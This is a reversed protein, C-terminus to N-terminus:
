FKDSVCYENKGANKAEYLLRDATAMYDWTKTNESPQRCIAGQSVSIYRYDPNRSFKHTIALRHIRRKIDIVYNEVEQLTYNEYILVFEDGGYRAVFIGPYEGIDQLIKAIKGLVEDGAQHGYNDNYEKFYDIDLIEYGLNRGNLIAKQLAIESYENLSYRNNLGTLADIESKRRLEENRKEMEYRKKKSEELTFKVVLNDKLIMQQDKELKESLKYFLGCEQLFAAHDKIKEYYCIKLQVMQKQIHYSEAKNVLPGLKNIFIWFSDYKGIELLMSAYYYLDDFVDFLAIAECDKNDIENIVFDRRTIDGKGNAIQAELSKILIYILADEKQDSHEKSLALYYDADDFNKGHVACTTQNIYTTAKEFIAHAPYEAFIRESDDFYLKAHEPDNLFLYISGINTNFLYLMDVMGYEECIARGKLYYDMSLLLNGQSNAIIGLINQSRAVLRWQETTTLQEMGEIIYATAKRIENLEYTCFGMNFNIYGKIAIDHELEKMKKLEECLAISVRPNLLRNTEIELMKKRVKESYEEFNM